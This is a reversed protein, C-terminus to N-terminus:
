GTLKASYGCIFIFLIFLCFCTYCLENKIQCLKSMTTIQANDDKCPPDSSIVSVSGKLWPNIRSLVNIWKDFFCCQRHVSYNLIFQINHLCVWKLNLIWPIEIEPINKSHDPRIFRFMFRFQSLFNSFSHCSGQDFLIDSFKIIKRVRREETLDVFM